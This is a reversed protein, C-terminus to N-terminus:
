ASEEEVHLFYQPLFSNSPPNKDEERSTVAFYINLVHGDLQCKLHFLLM